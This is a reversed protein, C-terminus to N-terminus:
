ESTEQALEEPLNPQPDAPADIHRGSYKFVVFELPSDDAAKVGHYDWARAFLIDGEKAPTEKGNLYWTGQGKTVMLYEEDAHRHPPHIEQGADIKAVGVLVPKLVHTQDTFYPFFSGWPAKDETVGSQALIASAGAGNAGGQTEFKAESCATLSLALIPILYKM